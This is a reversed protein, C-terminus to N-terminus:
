NFCSVFKGELPPGTVPSRQTVSFGNDYQGNYILANSNLIAEVLFFRNASIVQEFSIKDPIFLRKSKNSGSPIVKAFSDM